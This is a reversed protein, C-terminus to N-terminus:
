HGVISISVKSEAGQEEVKIVLQRNSQMFTAMGQSGRVMAPGATWGKGPMERAYFDMVEQPTGTVQLEGMSGAGHSKTQIVRAGKFLPVEGNMFFADDQSKGQEKLAKAEEKTQPLAPPTEARAMDASFSAARAHVCTILIMFVVLVASLFGGGRMGRNGANKRFAGKVTRKM